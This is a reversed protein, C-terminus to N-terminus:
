CPDSFEVFVPTTPESINAPEGFDPEKGFFAPKGFDAPAGFDAEGVDEFVFKTYKPETVQDNCLAWVVGGKSKVRWALNREVWRFQTLATNRGRIPALRKGRPM